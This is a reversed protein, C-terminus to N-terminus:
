RRGEKTFIEKLQAQIPQTTDLIKVFPKEKETWGEATDLQSALLDATADAIDGTRQQLRQQLVDLPATCCLIQLPIKKAQAQAIAEQRLQQRDYKADLIVNFGQSALM